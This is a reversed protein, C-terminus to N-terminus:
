LRTEKEKLVTTFLNGDNVKSEVSVLPFKTVGKLYMDITYKILRVTDCSYVSALDKKYEETYEYNIGKYSGKITGENYSM